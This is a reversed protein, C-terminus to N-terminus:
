AYLLNPLHSIIEEVTSYVNPPLTGEDVYPKILDEIQKLENSLDKFSYVSSSGRLAHVKNYFDFFDAKSSQTALLLLHNAIDEIKSPLKKTYEAVLEAYEKSYDDTM